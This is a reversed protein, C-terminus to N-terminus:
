RSVYKREGTRREVYVTVTKGTEGDVFKESTEEWNGLPPGSELPKYRLREYLTGVLGLVGWLVFMLGAPVAGYVLAIVGGALCAASLVLVANRLM